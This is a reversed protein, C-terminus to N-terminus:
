PFGFEHMHYGVAIPQCHRTKAIDGLPQPTEWQVTATQLRENPSAVLILRAGSARAGNAPKSIPTRVHRDGARRCIGARARMGTVAYCATFLCVGAM